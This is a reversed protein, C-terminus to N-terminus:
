QRPVVFFWGESELSQYILHYKMDIGCDRLADYVTSSSFIGDWPIVNERSLNITLSYNRYELSMRRTKADWVYIDGNRGVTEYVM